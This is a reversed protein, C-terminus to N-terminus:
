TGLGCYLENMLRPHNLSSGPRHMPSPRQRARRARRQERGAQDNCHVTAKAAASEPTVEDVCTTGSPLLVDHAVPPPRCVSDSTGSPSPPPRKKCLKPRTPRPPKSAKQLAGTSDFATLFASSAKALRRARKRKKRNNLKICLPPSKLPPSAYDTPTAQLVSSVAPM